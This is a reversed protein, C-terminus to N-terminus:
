KRGLISLVRIFLNIIDMYIATASDIANDVTKSIRNARQWDYGIYGCFILAVIWDIIGPHMGFLSLGIEVVIVAILSVFLVGGLKSFIQPFLSSLFMMILTVTGTVFIAMFVVDPNYRAIFINLLLGFPIVILNYGIFSIVPDDSSNVLHVGLLCIAFYAALFLIPNVSQLTSTDVFAVLIMNIVFGWLLTAGIIINYAKDSILDCGYDRKFVENEIKM